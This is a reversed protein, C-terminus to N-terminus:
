HGLGLWQGLGLWHGIDLWQSKTGCDPLLILALVAMAIIIVIAVSSGKLSKLKQM